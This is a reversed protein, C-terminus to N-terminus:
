APASGTHEAVTFWSSFIRSLHARPSTQMPVLTVRLSEVTTSNSPSTPKSMTQISM